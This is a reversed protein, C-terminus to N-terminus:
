RDEWAARRADSVALSSNTGFLKVPSDVRESVANFKEITADGLEVGCKLSVLDLYCQVDACEAAIMPRAEEMTLDGRRVKKIINLLEGVEGALAGGWELPSWDSGDAKDNKDSKPHAPGGKANKFHGVRAKNADRLEQLNLTKM